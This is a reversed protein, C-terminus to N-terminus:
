KVLVMKKTDVVNHDVTLRYFYLGSSLNRANWQVEYTGTAYQGNVLTAVVQGLLNYVKMEVKGARPLAFQIVTSPNFPNPYNQSLSYAVPLGNVGDRMEVSTTVATTDFELLAWYEADILNFGGPDGPAGPMTPPVAFPSDVVSPQWTWYAYADGNPPGYASSSQSGGFNFGISANAAVNPNYIALEVDWTGAITDIFTASRSIDSALFVRLTDEPFKRWEEPVFTEAENNLTVRDGLVLFHFPGEPAAYVNGDYNSGMPTGLRSSISVFLQDSEWQNDPNWYLGSSDNVVDKIHIFVFLTERAWLMRGSLEPYDPEIVERGYFNFYGEFGVPTIVDAKAGGNWEPEDAKGDITIAAPDVKPVDILKRQAFLSIVSLLLCITLMGSITFKRM